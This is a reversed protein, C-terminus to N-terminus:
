VVLNQDRSVLKLVVGVEIDVWQHFRESVGDREVQVDFQRAARGVVIADGVENRSTEGVLEKRILLAREHCALGPSRRNLCSM